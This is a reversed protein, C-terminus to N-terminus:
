AEHALERVLSKYLNGRAEFSTFMDLSSCAPSLLVADGAKALRAALLVAEPMTDVCEYPIGAPLLKAIEKKDRGILVLRAVSTKIERILDSFDAGKSDGGALLILNGAISKKISRIAAVSAGVNTGKSDNIWTVEGVDEVYECRHPLGKFTQLAKIMAAFPLGVAYGLALAALANSVEHAHSAYLQSVALLRTTGFSLFSQNVEKLVGFEGKKPSQLTYHLRFGARPIRKNKLIPDDINVVVSKAQRYIKLKQFLYDDFSDHRDMHDECINLIVAANPRLSELTELQFSSLEMVFLEVSLDELADLVPVGINGIAKANLGATKAMHTVLATVTSKANSGTIAIVPAKVERAFLEIDGIVPIGKEQSQAILPHHLSVGPSLVITDANFFDEEKFEGLSFEVHPFNEQAQLLFPPDKRTDVVKIHKTINKQTFYHLCSYGTKGLGVILVSNVISRVLYLADDWPVDNWPVDNWPVDNWPVDNWPV